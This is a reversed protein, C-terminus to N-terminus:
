VTVLVDLFEPDCVIRLATTHDAATGQVHHPFVEGLYARQGRVRPSGTSAHPIGHQRL